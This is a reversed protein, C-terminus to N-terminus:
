DSYMNKEYILDDREGRSRFELEFIIRNLPNSSSIFTNHGGNEDDISKNDQNTVTITLNTLKDPNITTVYNDESGYNVNFSPSLTYFTIDANDTLVQLPENTLKLKEGDTISKIFTNAPINTGSVGMGVSLNITTDLKIEDDVTDTDDNIKIVIADNIHTTNIIAIKNRMNPNNSYNRINFEDIDFVLYSCNVSNTLGMVTVNRLYVDCLKDIKLTDQLDIKFKYWKNTGLNSVTSNYQNQENGTDITVVKKDVREIGTGTNQYILPQIPAEEGVPKILNPLYEEGEYSELENSKSNDKQKFIISTLMDQINSNSYDDYLSGTSESLTNKDIKDELIKEFALKDSNNKDSTTIKTDFLPEPSKFNDQSQSIIQEFNDKIKKNAAKVQDNFTDLENVFGKQDHNSQLQDDDQNFSNFVDSTINNNFKVKKSKKKKKPEEVNDLVISQILGSNSSKVNINNKRNKTNIDKLLFDISKNLVIDNFDNVVINKYNENVKISNFITKALKKIIKKYKDYSNLNYNHNKVFHVNIYEYINDINDKSIFSNDM